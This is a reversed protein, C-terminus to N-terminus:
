IAMSSAQPVPSATDSHFRRMLARRRALACGLADLSDEEWALMANALAKRSAASGGADIDSALASPALTALPSRM